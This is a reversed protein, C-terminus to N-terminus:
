RFASGVPNSSDWVPKLSKGTFSYSASLRNSFYLMLCSPCCCPRAQFAKTTNTNRVRVFNFYSFKTKFVYRGHFSLALVVHNTRNWQAMLSIMPEVLSWVISFLLRNPKLSTKILLKGSSCRWQMMIKWIMLFQGLGSPRFADTGCMGTM